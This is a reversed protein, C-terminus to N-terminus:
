GQRMYVVGRLNLSEALNPQKADIADLAILAEDYKGKDFARFAKEYMAELNSNEPSVGSATFSSLLLLSVAMWLWVKM